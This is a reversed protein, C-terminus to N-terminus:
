PYNPEKAKPEPAQCREVLRLFQRALTSLDSDPDLHAKELVHNALAIALDYETKYSVRILNCWCPTGDTKHEREAM